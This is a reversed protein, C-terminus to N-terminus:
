CCLPILFHSDFVIYGDVTKWFLPFEDVLRDFHAETVVCGFRYTADAHTVIYLFWEDLDDAQVVSSENEGRLAHNLV